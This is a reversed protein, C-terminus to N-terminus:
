RASRWPRHRRDGVRTIGLRRIVPQAAALDIVAFPPFLLLWALLAVGIVMVANRVRQIDM